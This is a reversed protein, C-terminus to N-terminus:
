PALRAGRGGCWRFRGRLGRRRSALVNSWSGAGTLNPDVRGTFDVVAGASAPVALRLFAIVHGFGFCARLTRPRIMSLSTARLAARGGCCSSPSRKVAILRGLLPSRFAFTRNAVTRALDTLREPQAFRGQGYAERDSTKCRESRCRRQAREPRM